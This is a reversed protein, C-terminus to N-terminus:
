AKWGGPKAKNWVSLPRKKNEKRPMKLKLVLSFHDTPRITMKGKSCTVRKPTFKRASDVLMKDLYPELNKSGIALDLCSLGGDAPDERTWPGGEVLALNNFIMYEGSAVLDRVLKGGYSIDPKNGAVGLMDAGVARNLDGLILVAEGRAEILALEKKIRGWSDLIKDVGGARGEIQGYINLINLAPEVNELRTLLYEDGESNDSVKVAYQRLYSQFSTSM